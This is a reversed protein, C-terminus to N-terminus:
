CVQKRLRARINHSTVTIYPSTTPIIGMPRTDREPSLTLFLHSRGRYGCTFLFRAHNRRVKQSLLQQSAKLDALTALIESLVPESM